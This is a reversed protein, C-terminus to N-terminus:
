GLRGRSEALCELPGQPAPEARDLRKIIAAVAAQTKKVAPRRVEVVSQGMFFVHVSGGAKASQREIDTDSIDPLTPPPVAPVRPRAKTTATM